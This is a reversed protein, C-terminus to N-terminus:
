FGQKNWHGRVNGSYKMTIAEFNWTKWKHRYHNKLHSAHRTHHFRTENKAMYINLKGM